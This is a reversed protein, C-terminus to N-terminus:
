YGHKFSSEKNMSSAMTSVITPDMESVDCCHESETGPVPDFGGDNLPHCRFIRAFGLWSGKLAGHTSLAQLFYSSCSPYFRCHPGLWPSLLKKYCLIFFSLLKAM